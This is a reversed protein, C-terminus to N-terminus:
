SAKSTLDEFAELFIFEIPRDPFFTKSIKFAEDLNLPAKRALKRALTDRNMGIESVSELITIGRAGMESRLNKFAIGNQFAM